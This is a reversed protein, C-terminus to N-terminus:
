NGQVTLETEFNIFQHRRAHWLKFPESIAPILNNIHTHWVASDIRANRCFIINKKGHIFIHISRSEMMHQYMINANSLHANTTSADWANSNCWNYCDFSSSSSFFDSVSIHFWILTLEIWCQNQNDQIIENKSTQTLFLQFLYFIPLRTCIM